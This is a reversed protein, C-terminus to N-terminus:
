HILSKLSKVAGQFDPNMEMNEKASEKTNQGIDDTFYNRTTM